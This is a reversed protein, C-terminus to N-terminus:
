RRIVIKEKLDERINDRFNKMIRRINERTTGWKEEIFDLIESPTNKGPVYFTYITRVIDVERESLSNIYREILNENRSFQAVDSDIEYYETNEIEEILEHHINELYNNITSKQSIYTEELQDENQSERDSKEKRIQEKISEDIYLDYYVSLMVTKIWSIISIRINKSCIKGKKFSKAKKHYIVSFTDSVLDQADSEKDKSYRCINLAISYMIEWYLEYIKGYAVLAEEPFDEKIGILEILYDDSEEGSKCIHDPPSM